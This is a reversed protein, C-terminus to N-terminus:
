LMIIGLLHKSLPHGPDNSPQPPLFPDPPEVPPHHGTHHPHQRRRPHGEQHILIYLIIQRFPHLIPRFAPPSPTIAWNFTDIPQHRNPISLYTVPETRYWETMNLNSSVLLISVQMECSFQGHRSKLHKDPSMSSVVCTTARLEQGNYTTRVFHKPPSWSSVRHSGGARIKSALSVGTNM